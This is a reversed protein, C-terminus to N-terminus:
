YLYEFVFVVCAQWAPVLAARPIEKFGRQSKRTSNKQFAAARVPRPFAKRCLMFAPVTQRMALLICRLAERAQPRKRKQM